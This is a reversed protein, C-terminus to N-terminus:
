RHVHSPDGKTPYALGPAVWAFVRFTEAGSVGFGRQDTEHQFGIATLFASATPHGAWCRAEIRHLGIPAAVQDLQHRIMLATATIQPRYLAHDRALFAAEAVGALGTAFLGLVGIPHDGGARTESIVRALVARGMAARWDAFLSLHTQRLGRAVEAEHHDNPDLHKFVEFAPLDTWSAHTVRPLRM